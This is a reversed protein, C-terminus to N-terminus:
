ARARAAADPHPRPRLRGRARLRYLALAVLATDGVLYGFRSGSLRAAREMEFRGVETHEPGTPAPEGVRRLEVADEESAGDPASADPPNPM